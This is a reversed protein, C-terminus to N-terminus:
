SKIAADDPWHPNQGWGSTSGMFGHVEPAGYYGNDLQGLYGREARVAENKVQAIRRYVMDRTKGPSRQPINFGNEEM